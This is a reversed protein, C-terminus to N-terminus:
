ISTRLEFYLAPRSDQDTEKALSEGYWETPRVLGSVPDCQQTTESEMIKKLNQNM